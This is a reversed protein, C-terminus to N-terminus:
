CGILAGSYFTHTGAKTHAEAYKLFEKAFARFIPPGSTAPKPWPDNPHIQWLRLARRHEDEVNKAVAKNTTASQRIRFNEM